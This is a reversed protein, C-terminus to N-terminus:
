TEKVSINVPWFPFQFYHPPCFLPPSDHQRLLALCLWTINFLLLYHLFFDQLQLYVSLVLFYPLSFHPLLSNVSHLNPESLGLTQGSHAANQWHIDCEWMWICVCFSPEINYIFHCAFVTRPEQCFSWVEEWLFSQSHRKFFSM